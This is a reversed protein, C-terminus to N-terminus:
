EEVCDSMMEEPFGNDRLLPCSIQGNGDLVLEWNDGTKKAFFYGGSVPSRDKNLFAVSGRVHNEALESITIKLSIQQLKYKEAILERIAERVSVEPINNRNFYGCEIKVALNDEPQQAAEQNKEAPSFNLICAMYNHQYGRLGGNAGDAVNYLDPEAVSDLYNEIGTIDDMKLGQAEYSVGKVEQDSIKNDGLNVKWNFAAEGADSLEIGTNAKIGAALEAAEDPCFEEFIRLCKSEAACWIYGASGICGHEDADGGVVPEETNNQEQDAPQDGSPANNDLGSQRNFGSYFYIASGVMGLVAIIAIIAATKKMFKQNGFGSM